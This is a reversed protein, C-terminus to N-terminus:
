LLADAAARIIAHCDHHELQAYPSLAMRHALAAIALAHVDDPSPSERGDLAARARALRLLSQGARPGPGWAIQDKLSDDYLSHPRLGQILRTIGSTVHSAVPMEKLSHQCHMLQDANMVPKAEPLKAATTTIIIEEESKASPYDMMCRLIFRDLQAEPLPYTGEQELPNHTALVHFPHPLPHSTGGTSIVREEMAELLASQTKPSARNIEDALLLQTFVAGQVFRFQRTGDREDLIDSGIIDSPMLDPTCQIRKSDLGMVVALTRTLLTKGVGPVGVLLVHGEALIATLVSSIVGDQGKIVRAVADHLDAMLSHTDKMSVPMKRCLLPRAHHGAEGM